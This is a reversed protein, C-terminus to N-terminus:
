RATEGGDVIFEAGTCFSAEESALFLVMQAIEEPRGLRGMPNVTKAIEELGPLGASMGTLTGGPHVSNVRVGHQALEVAAAKTLGRVAFKSATYALMPVGILGAVSSINIISGSRREIMGPAVATMGLFVGTQNTAVIRQYEAETANEITEYSVVGANNVLIDVPGFADIAAKVACQWGTKDSVDHHVYRATGGLQAALAAGQGDAVDTLVVSAGEEVLRRATAAGIGSAGGTVIAVKGQVRGSNQNAM